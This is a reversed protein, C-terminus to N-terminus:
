NAHQSVQREIFLHIRNRASSLSKKLADVNRELFAMNEQRAEDLLKQAESVLVDMQKDLAPLHSLMEAKDSDSLAEGNQQRLESVKTNIQSVMEGLAGFRAFLSETAQRRKELVESLQAVTKEANEHRAQTQGLTSSLQKMGVEIRSRCQTIEAVVALGRELGKDSAISLRQLEQTLTEFQILEQDLSVAAQGFESLNPSSTTSM